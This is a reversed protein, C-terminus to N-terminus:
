PHHYYFKGHKHSVFLNGEKVLGFKGFFPPPDCTSLAVHSPHDWIMNEFSPPVDYADWNGKLLGLEYPLTNAFRLLM